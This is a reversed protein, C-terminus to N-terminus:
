AASQLVHGKRSEEVTETMTLYRPGALWEGSQEMTLASALLLCSRRSPSIRVLRTCRAFAGAM